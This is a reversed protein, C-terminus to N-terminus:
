SRRLGSRGAPMRVMDRVESPTAHKVSLEIYAKWRPGMFHSEERMDASMGLPLCAAAAGLWGGSGTLPRQPAQQAEMM